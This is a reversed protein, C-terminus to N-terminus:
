VYFAMLIEPAKVVPAIPKGDPCTCKVDLKYSQPKPSDFWSCAALGLAACIVTIFIIKRM